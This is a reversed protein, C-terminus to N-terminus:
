VYFEKIEFFCYFLYLAATRYFILHAVVVLVVIFAVGVCCCLFVSFAFAQVSIYKVLTCLIHAMEPVVQLQCCKDLSHVVSIALYLM